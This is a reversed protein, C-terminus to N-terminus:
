FMLMGSSFLWWCRCLVRLRIVGVKCVWDCLLCKCCYVRLVVM